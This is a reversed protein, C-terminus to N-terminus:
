VMLEKAGMMAYFELFAFSFLNNGAGKGALFGPLM